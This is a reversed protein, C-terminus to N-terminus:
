KKAKINSKPARKPAAKKPQIKRKSTKEVNKTAKKATKVAKKPTASKAKTPKAASKKEQQQSELAANYRTRIIGAIDTERGTDCRYIRALRSFM